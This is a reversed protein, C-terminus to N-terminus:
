AAEQSPAKKRTALPLIPATVLFIALALLSTKAAIDWPLFGSTVIALYTIVVGFIWLVAVLAISAAVTQERFQAFLWVFAFAYLFDPVLTMAERTLGGYPPAFDPSLQASVADWASGLLINNGAWGLGNWLVGFVLTWIVIAPAKM